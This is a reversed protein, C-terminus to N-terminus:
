YMFGRFRNWNQCKKIKQTRRTLCWLTDTALRKLTCNAMEERKVSHLSCCTMVSNRIAGIFLNPVSWCGM